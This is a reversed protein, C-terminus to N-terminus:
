AVTSSGVLAKQLEGVVRSVHGSTMKGYMPLTILHDAVFETQPLATTYPEYIAFRHVAPYHVSTQIGADRLQARVADRRVAGGEVLVIPFIYHSSSGSRESFPVTLGRMDFFAERYQQAVRARAARDDTLKELQVLALSARIDDMRYNYGLELVDYKTAHGQAREYSLSTMGHSRMLRMRAAIEDDHCVAMGGEGCTLNKNSFFSFCGVDGWAGLMRGQEFVGPAHAADEVISLRHEKALATLALMDCSWGGFHMPLLARTRETIKRAVDRVDLCLDSPGVIDAFVPTAGVYRIANVTAVFTYSPVIVEAGPGIGVGALALHLAATCNTLAVAHPVGIFDAFRRELEAVNPGSSIWKSRLTAIVAQEEETGFNLDFLPIPENM